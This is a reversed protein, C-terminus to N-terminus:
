PQKVGAVVEGSDMDEIWLYMEYGHGTTRGSQVRYSRGAEFEVDNSTEASDYGSPNVLVSVLFWAGFKIRHSGPLLQVRGYDASNVLLGDIQLSYVGDGFGVTALESDPRVPGSYLKYDLQSPAAACGGLLLFLLRARAHGYWTSRRQRRGGFAALTPIIM